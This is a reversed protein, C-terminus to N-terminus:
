PQYGCNAPVPLAPGGFCELFTTLDDGDIDGDGIGHFDHDFCRCEPTSVATAADRGTFCRQFRGFDSQDVDGDGDADAFHSGCQRLVRQGTEFQVFSWRSETPPGASTNDGWLIRRYSTNDSAGARTLGGIVQGDLYFSVSGRGSDGAPDFVIQAAHYDQTPDIGSLLDNGAASTTRSYVGRTWSGSGDIFSLAWVDTGDIVQLQVQSPAGAALLKLRATATWGASDALIQPDLAVTYGHRSSTPSAISWYDEGDNGGILTSPNGVVSIDFGETQPDIRGVHRMVLPPPDHDFDVRALYISAKGEHSSYYSVWLLGQYWVFGPYSTDGGSPLTLFETLKGAQPDLWCLSMRTSGDYLRTGAVFRGDPLQILNPGGLRVGLDKFMWGTYPPQAIGLYGGQTGEERRVLAYATHDELFCLTTENPYGDGALLRPILTQYNAGQQTTYLRLFSDTRQGRGFGYGTDGHWTVRWLWVNYEGVRVPNTWVTGDSSFWVLPQRDNPLAEPAAAGLLMLRGDPTV